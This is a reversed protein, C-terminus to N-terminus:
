DGCRDEGSAEERGAATAIDHVFASGLVGTGWDLGFSGHRLIKGFANVGSIRVGALVTRCRGCGRRRLGCRCLGGGTIRLDRLWEHPLLRILRDAAGDDVGNDLSTSIRPCNTEDTKTGFGNIRIRGFQPQVQHEVTVTHDAISSAALGSKRPLVIDTFSCAM